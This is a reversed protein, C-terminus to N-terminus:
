ELVQLREVELYRGRRDRDVEGTLQVRTEPGVEQRRWIEREIEVRMEGTQDRFTYYDERLHGVINGTVTVTSGLRANGIAQVTTAQAVGSPGTFQAVAITAFFGVALIALLIRM